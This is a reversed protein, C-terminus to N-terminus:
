RINLGMTRFRDVALGLSRYHRLLLLVSCRDFVTARFEPVDDLDRCVAIADTCTIQRPEGPVAQMPAISGVARFVPVLRGQGAPM